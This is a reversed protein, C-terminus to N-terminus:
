YMVKSPVLSASVIKTASLQRVMNQLLMSDVFPFEKLMQRILRDQMEPYGDEERGKVL